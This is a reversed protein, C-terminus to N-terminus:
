RPLVNKGAITVHALIAALLQEAALQFKLVYNRTGAAPLTCPLVKYGRAAVAICALRVPRRDGLRIHATFGGYALNQLRAEGGIAKEALLINANVRKQLKKTRYIYDRLSLPFRSRM